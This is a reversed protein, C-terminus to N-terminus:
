DAKKLMERIITFRYASYDSNAKLEIMVLALRPKDENIWFGAFWAIERTKDDSVQATGTKGAVRAGTDGLSAGTGETVVAELMPTITSISDSNIVGSKWVIPSAESVRKYDTGDVEYFSDM